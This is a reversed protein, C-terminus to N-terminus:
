WKAVWNKRAAFKLKDMGSRGKKEKRVESEMVQVAVFLAQEPSLGRQKDRVKPLVELQLCAPCLNFPSSRLRQRVRAPLTDFYNEMWEHGASNILCKTQNIKNNDM